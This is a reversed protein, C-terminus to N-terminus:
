LEPATTFTSTATGLLGITKTSTFCCQVSDVQVSMEGAHAPPQPQADSQSLLEIATHFDLHGDM